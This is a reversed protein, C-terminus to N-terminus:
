RGSATGEDATRALKKVEPAQWPGTVMYEQSIAEEVPDRLVKQAALAGVGALPGGLLAGAVAVGESIKPIVKVRLQVAEKNLDALGSMNVKAAPGRMRFDNSYVVGRAIRLTAGMDDFAFGENFIDRFDFNLRRRVSQLSLVGLLKGVGPDIKLFQGNRAKFDLQGALTRVTFDAPSGEWAANGDIQASGRSVADPYGFRALFRSADHVMLHLDARTESLGQDRWLGSMRFVSDPHTLQLNEIMLGQQAGRAAVELKGLANAQLRFDDVVLDFRPLEAARIRMGEDAPAPESGAMAPPIVLQRFQGSVVARQGPQARYALVGNMERGTVRMRLQGDQTAGQLRVAHFRRGMFDFADFALDVASVDFGDDDAAGAPLLGAWGSIDLGSGSGALRLGPALPLTAPGGFRIEGREFEGAVTRWVAGVTQGIRVEHQHGRTSSTSTVSLPLPQSAPKALPAPLTSALGVLDSEVRVREGSPDLEIEGRWAAQGSLRQARSAGLWPQMGAATARGEANIRVKGDRTAADVRLPGGLFQATVGRASLSHATFDINGRVEELRPLGPGALAAGQLALSGEVTADDLHRLPLHLALKLRAHGNGELKRTLGRLRDAVPSENAFRIFDAAQGRGEGNVVLEEDHHILDPIAVSVPGLAVGFIRGQRASVDMRKGHFVLRGAVGDIRPWAAVYDIVGDHVEADVRFIGDGDDFPFNRLDGRLALTVNDSRGAVIGNQVWEVTRDGVKKPLYRYVATGDARSLRARLDIVGPTGVIWEYYGGASGAMDANAFRMTRVNVRRGDATRKWTGSAQLTDLPVDAERFLEPLSLVLASSDIEFAGGTADGDVSGSLNAVGPQAGSAAVGLGTFHATVGFNDIGPRAGQWSFRLDDFRGQPKLAALRVRLAEDVPLAPLLAGWGDLRVDRATVERAAGRWAFTANFPAGLETGRWGVRANELMVRQGDGDRQWAARGQLRAIRLPALDEGLRAELARVDFGVTAGALSGREFALRLRFAGWGASPWQPVDLWRAAQPFALGATQAEAVGSWTTSDDLDRARLMGEVTLPRALQAPLQAHLRFRHTRLTRTLVFDVDALVLPPAALADDTWILTADSVDVQGQHLLWKSFGGGPAGPNVPMGGVFLKGDVTRRMDVELGQLRLRNFRPEFLLLSRWAFSADLQPLELASVGQSDYIRVGQMRFEPHAQQWTGSIAELTVRQGLARSMLAAVGDRHDAINPLVWFFMWAAAAGSVTAVVTVLVALGRAARRLLLPLAPSVTM